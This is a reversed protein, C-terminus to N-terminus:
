RPVTPLLTMLNDDFCDQIVHQLTWDWNYDDYTCFEASCLKLKTWLDRDITFAMNHKSSFWEVLLLKDASIKVNKYLNDYNGLTLLDM